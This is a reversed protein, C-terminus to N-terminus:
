KRYARVVVDTCVGIDSPVDGDPYPIRRYSGDYRVRHRLRERAAESLRQSFGPPEGERFAAAAAPGLALVALLAVLPVVRPNRPGM